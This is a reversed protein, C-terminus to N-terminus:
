FVGPLFVGPLFVGPPVLGPQFARLRRGGDGRACEALPDTFEQGTMIRRRQGPGLEEPGAEVRAQGPHVVRGAQASHPQGAGQLGHDVGRERGRARRAVVGLPDADSEAHGRRGNEAETGIVLLLAPQPRQPRALLDPALQEALRAGARAESPV